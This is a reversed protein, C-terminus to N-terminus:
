HKERGLACVFHKEKGVTRSGICDEGEERMNKAVLRVFLINKRKRSYVVWDM